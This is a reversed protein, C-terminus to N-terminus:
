NENKRKLISLIIYLLTILGAFQAFKDGYKTYFTIRKEPFVTAEIVGKENLGLENLINGSHDIVM